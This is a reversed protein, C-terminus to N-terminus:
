ASTRRASRSAASSARRRASRGATSPPASCSRRRRPRRRHRPGRLHIIHGSQEGGLIGGERELAELVYRDGVDTTVVASGTSRADPRPLRPEDDPHRRRPRRGLDLALVALIGDGDVVEGREDVAILRDGDGDFALGLAAGTEVVTRQLLATDTAGCGININTGDPENGIAHVRAGLREFADLALGSCAGNACDVM